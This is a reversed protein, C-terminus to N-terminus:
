EIQLHKEDAYRGEFSTLALSLQGEQIITGYEVVFDIYQISFKNWVIHLFSFDSVPFLSGTVM